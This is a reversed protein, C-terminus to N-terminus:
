GGTRLKKYHVAVLASLILMAISFIASILDSFVIDKFLYVLFIVGLPIFCWQAIYINNINSSLISFFKKFADPLM